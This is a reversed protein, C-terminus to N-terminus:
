VLSAWVPAVEVVAQAQALPLPVGAPGLFLFDIIGAADTLLATKVETATYLVLGAVADHLSCTLVMAVAAEQENARLGGRVTWGTINRPAGNEDLVQFVGRLAANAKIHITPLKPTDTSAM